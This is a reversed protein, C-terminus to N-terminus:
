QGDQAERKTRIRRPETQNWQKTWALLQIYPQIGSM